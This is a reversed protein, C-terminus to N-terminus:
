SRTVTIKVLGGPDAVGAGGHTSRWELVDGAAVVLDSPTASLTIAKPVFAALNVGSALTLTAVVTSGAGAPGKNVLSLVRNDTVAGTVAADAAYSVASVSGPNDVVAVSDVGDAGQAVAGGHIQYHDALLSADSEIISIDFDYSSAHSVQVTIKDGTQLVIGDLDGTDAEQGATLDAVLIERTASASADYLTVIAEGDLKAVIQAATVEATTAAPCTYLDVPTTVAPSGSVNKPSDM